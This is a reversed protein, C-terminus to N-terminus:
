RQGYADIFAAENGDHTIKWAPFATDALVASEVDISNEDLWYVMEISSVHVDGLNEDLAQAMFVMLAQAASITRQKKSHFNVASLWQCDVGSLEKDKFVFTVHSQEITTGDVANKYIAKISGGDREVAEFVANKKIDRAVDDEDPLERIFSDALRRYEEDSGDSVTWSGQAQHVLEQKLAYDVEAHQVFLVPMDKSRKPIIGAEVHVGKQGLFAALAKYDKFEESKAISFNGYALILFVDTVVLAIILITKAKAWNM